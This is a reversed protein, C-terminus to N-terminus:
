GRYETVSCYREGAKVFPRKWQPNNVSNPYFQTELAICGRYCCSVGDKGTEGELFNGCCFRIGACDTQVRM